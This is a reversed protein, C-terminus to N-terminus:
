FTSRVAGVATISAESPSNLAHPAPPTARAIPGSIALPRACRVLIPVPRRSTSVATASHQNGPTACPADVAGTAANETEGSAGSVASVTVNVDAEEPSM